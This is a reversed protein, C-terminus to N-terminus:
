RREKWVAYQRNQETLLADIGARELEALMRALADEPEVIGSELIPRYREYIECINLYEQMVTSPDFVFGVDPAREAMQNFRKTQEWLDAPDGESVETLFLNPVMWSATVRSLLENLQPNQYLENLLCMSRQASATNRPIAYTIATYADQTILSSGLGIEVYRAGQMRSVEEAAGPKGCRALTLLTGQKTRIEGAESYLGVYGKEYWERIQDLVARYERTAFYNVYCDQGEDLVSVFPTQPNLHRRNSALSQLYSSLIVTDPENEHIVAFVQELEEMTRIEDACIGSRELVETNLYYSDTTFAYDRINPIGYVAGNVTCSRIVSEEVQEIIDAGYDRLLGDLPLLDGCLCTEVYTGVCLMVDVQGSGALVERMEKAYSDFPLIRLEVRLGLRDELIANMQAQVQETGERNSPDGPLFMVCTEWTQGEDPGGSTQTRCGALLLCLTLLIAPIRRM